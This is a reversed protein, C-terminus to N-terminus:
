SAWARFSVIYLSVESKSCEEEQQQGVENVQSSSSDHHTVMGAEQSFTKHCELLPAYNRCHCPIAPVLALSVLLQHWPIEEEGSSVIVTRVNPFDM